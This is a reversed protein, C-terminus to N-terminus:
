YPDPSLSAGLSGSVLPLPSCDPVRLASLQLPRHLSSFVFPRWSPQHNHQPQHLNGQRQGTVALGVPGRLVESQTM